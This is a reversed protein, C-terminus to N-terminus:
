EQVHEQRHYVQRSSSSKKTTSITLTKGNDSLVWESRSFQETLGFPTQVKDAECIVLKDNQWTAYYSKGQEDLMQGNIGNIIYKKTMSSVNETKSIIQICNKVQKVLLDSIVSTPDSGKADRIWLGSFDPEATALVSWGLIATLFLFFTMHKM